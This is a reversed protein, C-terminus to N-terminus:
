GDRQRRDAWREASTTIAEAITEIPQPPDLRDMAQRAMALLEEAPAGATHMRTLNDLVIAVERLREEQRNIRSVEEALFLLLKCPSGQFVVYTARLRDRLSQNVSDIRTAVQQVERKVAGSLEATAADAAELSAKVALTIPYALVPFADDARRYVRV